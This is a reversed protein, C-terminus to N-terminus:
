VRPLLQFFHLSRNRLSRRFAHWSSRLIFIGPILKRPFFIVPVMEAQRARPPFLVASGRLGWPPTQPIDFSGHHEKRIEAHRLLQGRIAFGAGMSLLAVVALFVLALFRRETAKSM